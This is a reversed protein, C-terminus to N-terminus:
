SRFQQIETDGHDPRGRRANEVLSGRSDVNIVPANSLKSFLDGVKETVLETGQSILDKKQEDSLDTFNTVADMVGSITNLVTSGAGQTFGDIIPNIFPKFTKYLSNLKGAFKAINRGIKAAGEKIKKWSFIGM